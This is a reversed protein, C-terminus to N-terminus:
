TSQMIYCADKPKELRSAYLDPKVANECGSTPTINHLMVQKDKKLSIKHSDEYKKSTLALTGMGSFPPHPSPSHTASNLSVQKAKSYAICFFM